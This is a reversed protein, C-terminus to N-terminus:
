ARAPPSSAGLIWRVQGDRRRVPFEGRWPTGHTASLAIAAEVRDRHSPDVLRFLLAADDTLADPPVGFLAECRESVFPFWGRKGDATLKFQYLVGPVNRAILELRQTASSVSAELERQLTVDTQTGLMRRPTGDVAREVIRGREHIWRWRGDAALARYVHDYHESEGRAHRQYAADNAGLDDPHILRNWSEQTPRFPDDPYGLM